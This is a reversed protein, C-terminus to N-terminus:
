LCSPFLAGARLLSLSLSLSSAKPGRNIHKDRGPGTRHINPWGPTNNTKGSTRVRTRPGEKTRNTRAKGKKDKLWRWKPSRKGTRGVWCFSQHQLQFELGKAVQYSSSVWKFLDRHQSLNFTPSSLSSLPHSPQIADGVCHVHTKTSELLQHHVPLGPTSCNM